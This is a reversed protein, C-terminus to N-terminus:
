KYSELNVQKGSLLGPYLVGDPATYKLGLLRTILPAIDELGMKPVVAGKAIGAGAAIFGTEIEKFDPFYGHTGGHATNVAEGKSSSSMTIGPIAALALPVNGDAGIHDLEPREIMRFLKRQAAPLRELISRVESLTKNDNKDHLMLFASAGSTHFRAKWAGKGDSVTQIGQQQLWINPSLSTHIDVFGHDGTVIVATSDHIGAQRLAELIRGISHDAGAVARSVQEGERGQAHEAHDVCPLHVALLAPKYASIIYAAMRAINDDFVTYDSNMDEERLKGTAHQEVLDLLNKPTAWDRIPSVHDNKKDLYRYEPLNYDIPAGVTVPWSVAGSKLGAEHVATWLTPIKILNYEWYWKGTEGEPEFPTNHYIGHRIPMAGTVITTHSPYTVTPFVGRVGDAYSGTSVLQHLNPTGWKDEKYFDPRFGDITILVVHRAPQANAPLLFFMPISFLYLHKKM